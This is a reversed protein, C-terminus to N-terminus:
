DATSEEWTVRLLAAHGPALWDGEGAFRQFVNPRAQSVVELKAPSKRWQLGRISLSKKLDKNLVM